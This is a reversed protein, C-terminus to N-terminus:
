RHYGTKAAERREVGVRIRLHMTIGPVASICYWIFFNL